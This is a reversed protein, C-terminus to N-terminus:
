NELTYKTLNERAYKFKAWVDILKLKHVHPILAIIDICDFIEILVLVPIYLQHLSIALATITDNQLRICYQEIMSLPMFEVIQRLTESNKLDCVQYNDLFECVVLRNIEAREVHLPMKSTIVCKPLSRTLLETIKSLETLRMVDVVNRRRGDIFHRVLNIVVDPPASTVHPLLPEINCINTYKSSAASKLLKDHDINTVKSLIHDVQSVENWNETVARKIMLNDYIDYPLNFAKCLALMRISDFRKYEYTFDIWKQIDPHGLLIETLENTSSRSFVKRPVIYKDVTVDAGNCILVVACQTGFEICRSVKPDTLQVLTLSIDNLKHIKCATHDCM